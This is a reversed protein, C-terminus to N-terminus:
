SIFAKPESSQISVGLGLLSIQLHSGRVGAGKEMEKSSIHNENNDNGMFPYLKLNITNHLPDTKFKIKAM